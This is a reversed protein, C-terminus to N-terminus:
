DSVSISRHMDPILSRALQEVDYDNSIEGFLDWRASAPEFPNLIVDGRKPDHFRRVYGGDPDAIVARDGRAIAARLLAVMIPLSLAPSVVSIAKM